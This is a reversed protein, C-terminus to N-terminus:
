WPAAGPPIASHLNLPARAAARSPWWPPGLLALSDLVAACLEAQEAPTKSRALPTRLYGPRSIALFELPARGIAARGLILAQEWGGMAGHLLLVPSGQGLRAIEVDGVRTALM